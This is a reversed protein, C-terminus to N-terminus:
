LEVVPNRRPSAQSLWDARLKIPYSGERRDYELTDLGSEELQSQIEVSQQLRISLVMTNKRPRKVIFNYPQGDKALGVYFKTYSLELAPDFERM